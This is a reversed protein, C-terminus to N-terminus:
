LFIINLKLFRRFKPPSERESFLFGTPRIYITLQLFGVSLYIKNLKFNLSLVDTNGTASQGTKWSKGM